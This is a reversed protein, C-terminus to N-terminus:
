CSVVIKLRALAAVVRFFRPRIERLARFYYTM